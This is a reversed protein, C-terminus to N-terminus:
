LRFSWSWIMEFANRKLSGYGLEDNCHDRWQRFHVRWECPCALPPGKWWFGLIQRFLSSRVTYVSVWVRKWDKSKLGSCQHGPCQHSLLTLWWQCLQLCWWYPIIFPKRSGTAASTLNLISTGQFISGYWNALQSAYGQCWFSDLYHWWRNWWTTTSNSWWSTTIEATTTTIPAPSATTTITTTPVPTTAPCYKDWNSCYNSM